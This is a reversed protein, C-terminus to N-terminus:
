VFLSTAESTPQKTAKTTVTKTQKPNKQKKKTHTYEPSFGTEGAIGLSPTPLIESSFLSHLSPVGPSGPIPRGRQEEATLRFSDKPIKKEGLGEQLFM